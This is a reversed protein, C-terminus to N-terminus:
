QELAAHPWGGNWTLTSIQLAPRGTHADYAHYVIIDQGGPQMLLSEGGPGAWHDNAKLLPMGGGEMMPVGQDDLYPGTVHKSRGVMTRYSSKAGRCCLDWSVFLYYYGGHHVIFPAEVAEWDPPLNPETPGPSPPRKRTAVAYTRTDKASLMGTTDDLKRMKIGTWFSGFVLWAHGKADVVYNPDIANFDDSALSQLVRGHDVWRYEPSHADLTKNTALAIGSTNKGFLSYAYYLRYEGHEYSIDPAWLERTGPSDKRIWDPITDFVHGCLTWAHLDTSCRIQFQGGDRARGTAFVYWTDGAKIISPDHTGWFEGTLTLAQPQQACVSSVPVCALLLLALRIKM